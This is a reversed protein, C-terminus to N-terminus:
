FLPQLKFLTECGKFFINSFYVSLGHSISMKHEPAAKEILYSPHFKKQTLFLSFTSNNKSVKDKRINLGDQSALLDL